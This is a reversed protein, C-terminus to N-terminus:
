EDQRKTGNLLQKKAKRRFELAMFKQLTQVMCPEIYVYIHLSVGVSYRACKLCHLKLSPSLTMSQHPHQICLNLSEVPTRMSYFWIFLAGTFIWRLKLLIITSFKHLAMWAVTRKYTIVNNSVPSLSVSLSLFFIMAMMISITNIQLPIKNQRCFMLYAFKKARQLALNIYPFLGNPRFAHSDRSVINM